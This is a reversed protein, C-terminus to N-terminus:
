RDMDKSCASCIKPHEFFGDGAEFSGCHPCFRTRRLYGGLYGIVGLILLARWVPTDDSEWLLAIFLVGGSAVWAPWAWARLVPGAGDRSFLAWGLGILGFWAAFLLTVTAPMASAREQRPVPQSAIRAREGKAGTVVPEGTALRGATLGISVLQM